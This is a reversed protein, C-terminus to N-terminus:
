GETLKSQGASPLGHQRIIEAGETNCDNSVTMDPPTSATNRANTREHFAYAVASLPHTRNVVGTAVTLWFSGATLNTPRSCMKVIHALM